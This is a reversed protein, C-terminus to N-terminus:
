TKLYSKNCVPKTDFWNEMLNSVRNWTKNYAKLFEGEEISFSMNLKM